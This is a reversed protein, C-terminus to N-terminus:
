CTLLIQHTQAVSESWVATHNIMGTGVSQSVREFEKETVKYTFANQRWLEFVELSERVKIHSSAFYRSRTVGDNRSQRGGERFNVSLACAIGTLRPSMCFIEVDIMILATGAAQGVIARCM